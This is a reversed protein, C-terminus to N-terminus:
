ALCKQLETRMDSVSQYRLAPEVSLARDIVDALDPFDIPLAGTLVFYFTAALSWIDNLPTAHKFDTVQERPMFAPTGGSRGTVTLGSLGATEFCKSLGLDAIKAIVQDKAKTLMINAPKLDRHVLKARHAAELGNLCQLLLPVAKACPVKGGCQEMLTELSGLNCYEMVLFFQTLASKSELLRVIHPHRLRSM